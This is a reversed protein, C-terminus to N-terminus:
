NLWKEFDEGIVELQEPKSFTKFCLECLNIPDDKTTKKKKKKKTRSTAVAIIPSDAGDGHIVEFEEEQDEKCVHVAKRKKLTQSSNKLSKKRKSAEDLLYLNSADRSAIQGKNRLLKSILLDQVGKLSIISRKATPQEPEKPQLQNKKVIPKKKLQLIVKANSRPGQVKQSPNETKEESIMFVESYVPNHPTCSDSHANYDSLNIYTKNCDVCTITIGEDM